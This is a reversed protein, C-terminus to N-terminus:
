VYGSSELRLAAEYTPLGTQDIIQSMDLRVLGNEALNRFTDGGGSGMAARENDASKNGEGANNAPGVGVTGAALDHHNNLSNANNSGSDGATADSDDAAAAAAVGADDSPITRSKIPQLAASSPLNNNNEENHRADDHSTCSITPRGPQSNNNNNLEGTAATASDDSHFQLDQLLENLGCGNHSSCSHHTIGNDSNTVQINNGNNDDGNGDCDMLNDSCITVSGPWNTTATGCDGETTTEMATSGCGLLHNNNFHNQVVGGDVFQGCNRCYVQLSDNLQCNCNGIEGCGTTPSRLVRSLDTFDPEMLRNQKRRQNGIPDYLLAELKASLGRPSSDGEYSSVTSFDCSKRRSAVTAAREDQALVTDYSPPPGNLHHPYHHNHATVAVPLSQYENGTANDLLYSGSTGIGTGMSGPGFGTPTDYCQEVSYIEMNAENELWQQRYISTSRKKINRHCCYCVFCVVTIVVSLMAGGLMVNVNGHLNAGSRSNQLGQHYHGSGRLSSTTQNTNANKTQNGFTKYTSIAAHATQLKM